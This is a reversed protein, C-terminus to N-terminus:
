PPTSSISSAALQRIRTAVQRLGNLRTPTLIDPLGLLDICNPPERLISEATHGSYLRILAGALGAVIASDAHLRFHCLQDNLHMDLHVRSVCGLVRNADTRESEPLQPSLRGYRTLATLREHPDPITALSEVMAIQAAHLSQTTPSM